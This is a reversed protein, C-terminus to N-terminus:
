TSLSSHSLPRVTLANKTAYKILIAKLEPGTLEHGKPIPAFGTWEQVKGFVIQASQQMFSEEAKLEMTDLNFASPYLSLYYAAAGAVHPSAM